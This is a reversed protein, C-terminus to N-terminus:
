VVSKRDRISPSTQEISNSKQKPLLYCYDLCRISEFTVTCRAVYWPKRAKSMSRSTRESSNFLFVAPLAFMSCFQSQKLMWWLFMSSKNRPYEVFSSCWEHDCQCRQESVQQVTPQPHPGTPANRRPCSRDLHAQFQGRQIATQQCALCKVPLGDLLSCLEHSAPTIDRLSIKARCLPCSDERRQRQLWPTICPGCFTHRCKTCHPDIFPSSCISCILQPSIQNENVYEYKSSDM